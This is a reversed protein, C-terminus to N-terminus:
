KRKKRKKKKKSRGVTTAKSPKKLVRIPNGRKGKVNARPGPTAPVSPLAVNVPPSGGGGGGGGGNKKGGNKKGGNKKGGGKGKNGTKGGGTGGGVGPNNKKAM